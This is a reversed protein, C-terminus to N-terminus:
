GEEKIKARIYEALVAHATKGEAAAIRKFAEAEEIRIKTSVTKLHSSDWRANAAKKAESKMLVDGVKEAAFLSLVM